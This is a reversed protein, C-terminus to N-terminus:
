SVLDEAIPLLDAPTVGEPSKAGKLGFKGVNTRRLATLYGGTKLTTGLDRALARIYTGSGCHVRLSLKPWQYSLMDIAHITIAKAKLELPKGKRAAHYAKQGDVKKASFDPPIQDFTGTFKKLAEKIASESVPAAGPTPVVEGEADDTNSTAGLTVEAEYEKDLGTLAPVQKTAKGVCIVLVGTAMPDLTGTHGVKLKRSKIGMERAFQGRIKAVVDFSTWGQPKDIILIGNL